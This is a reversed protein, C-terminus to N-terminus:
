VFLSRTAPPGNKKIQRAESRKPIWGRVKYSKKVKEGFKWWGWKKGGNSESLGHPKKSFEQYVRPIRVGPERLPGWHYVKGLDPKLLAL